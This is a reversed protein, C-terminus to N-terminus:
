ITGDILGKAYQASRRDQSLQDGTNAGEIAMYGQYNAAQMASVAFRYDIDGLDLPVRLYIAKQLQPFHVKKLNKCHWYKAKPALAVIAAEMTEEPEEFQWFINGLDPNVGVNPLGILEVLRLGSWSNDAISGQHIEISVDIGQDAARQGVERLAKATEVFDHENAYRSAGQSVPEGRRESGPGNPHTAPTVITTNVVSAGIWGAFDVVKAMRERVRKGERPHAIPGGGRVCVAPVGADRLEAGLDRALEETAAVALSGGAPIEVGEFGSEKVYKLYRARHERAPMEGFADRQSPYYVGRRLAYCLKM